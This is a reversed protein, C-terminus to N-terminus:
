KKTLPSDQILLRGAKTQKRKLRLDRQILVRYEKRDGEKRRIEFAFQYLFTLGSRQGKSRSRPSCQVTYTKWLNVWFESTSNM